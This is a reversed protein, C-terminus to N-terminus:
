RAVVVVKSEGNEKVVRFIQDAFSELEKDHSVLIVQPSEIDDLIERMKGLQENSFGDTPEDLILLNSRMGTSVKQVVSNLALRYALALSTKEGGSLYGVEQEYGDQEVLPTFNEDVRAEKSQDEVLTSFWEQFRSNFDQNISTLVQREIADLAQIFYDDIWIGYEKLSAAKRKADEKSKAELQREEIDHELHEIDRGNRDIVSRTTLLEADLNDIQSNIRDIRESVGSLQEIEKKAQFLKKETEEYEYRLEQEKSRRMDLEKISESLDEKHEQLREVMMDYKRRGDLLKKLASQRQKHEEIDGALKVKEAAKDREKAVFETADAERDCMACRGTEHISKYEEIKADAKALLKTFDMIHESLVTMEESLDEESRPTPSQIEMKAQEGLREVRKEGTDLDSRLRQLERSKSDFFKQLLSVEKRAAVLQNENERLTQLDEHLAARQKEKQEKIAISSALEKRKSELEMMNERIRDLLAPLDESKVRFDRSRSLIRRSLEGAGEKAVKYDEIGFAKRLTQLRIDASMFLIAKMEEQATYVAYRYIVSQSKPDVPEKFGLIKLMREKMDSPSLTETGEPARLDGDVQQVKGTKRVLNRQVTYGVGEVEFNVTVAGKDAGSRLLSAGRESGLGFLAFEIAMLLTSKGSGIDGEFLTRGEPIDISADKYSRINQLKVNKIIM